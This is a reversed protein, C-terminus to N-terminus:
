PQIQGALFAAADDAPVGKAVFAQGIGRALIFTLAGRAVKKDQAIAAMLQEVTPREGPIDAIRTPLGASKLHAAARRADEAPCLGRRASFAFARAMGIAVAEGHYLRDSFGTAAELAHGFTHGLNLLARAGKVEREDEAVIKAKARASTAIAEERERGGAFVAPANRELWAFFGAGGLLGYKVVEAYGAAFQRRPLTDLVATDAIVLSPQHFSGVLNKGRATNIGTKGGIASDVQALLTTPVQIVRM